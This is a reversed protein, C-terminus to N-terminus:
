PDSPELEWPVDPASPGGHQLRLPLVIQGSWFKGAPGARLALEPVGTVRVQWRDDDPSAQRILDLNEFVIEWGIGRSAASPGAIWWLDLQRALEGDRLLELRAGVAVDEFAPGFTQRRDVRVRMPSTGSEWRTWGARFVARMAQDLDEGRAPRFHDDLTGRVAVRARVTQDLQHVWPEDPGRRRSVDLDLQIEHEGEPLPPLPLSFATGPQYQGTRRFTTASARDIKPKARIRMETEAPWWDQAEVDLRIPVGVPWSERATIEIWPPIRLLVAEQEPEDVLRGRYRQLLDGYKTRWAAGPPRIGAEGRACRDLLMSWERDSLQDRRMRWILEDYFDNGPGDLIPLAILLVKTPLVGIWGRMSVRDQVVGAVVVCTLIAGIALPWNRRTGFLDRERAATHGCEPCTRGDTHSLDYWCTPCRRTGRQKDGFLARWALYVGAVNLALVALWGLWYVLDGAMEQSTYSLAEGRNRHM